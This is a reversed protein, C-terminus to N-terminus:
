CTPTAKPINLHLRDLTENADRVCDAITEFFEGVDRFSRPGVDRVWYYRGSVANHWVQVHAGKYAFELVAPL